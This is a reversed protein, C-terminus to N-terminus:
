LEERVAFGATKGTRDNSILADVVRVRVNEPDHVFATSLTFTASLLERRLADPDPLEGLM